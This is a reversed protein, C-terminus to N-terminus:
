VITGRATRWTTGDSFLPLALAADFVMAGVGATAPDPRLAVPRAVAYSNVTLRGDSRRGTLVKVTSADDRAGILQLDSGKNAGVEASTNSTLTWLTAGLRRMDILCRGGASKDVRLRAEGSEVGLVIRDGLTRPATEFAVLSGGSSVNDNATWTPVGGPRFVGYGMSAPEAASAPSTLSSASPASSGNRDDVILNHTVLVNSTSGTADPTSIGFSENGYTVSPAAGNPKAVRGPRVVVNASVVINSCRREILIGGRDSDAVTNGTISVSGTLREDDTSGDGDSDTVTASDLGSVFIGCGEWWERLRESRTVVNGSISVSKSGGAAYIGHRASRDVTNGVVVVGTPGSQDEWGGVWIGNYYSGLVDNGTCVVHQSGRSISVGNDASYRVRNGSFIVAQNSRFGIDLCRHATSDTMRSFGRIGYLKVPISRFGWLEVRDVTVNRISPYPGGPLLDGVFEIAAQLGRTGTTGSSIVGASKSWDIVFERTDRAYDTGLADSNTLSGKITMDRITIDSAAETGSRLSFAADLKVHLMGSITTAGIGAGEITLQSHGALSCSKSLQYERAGARVVTPGPVAKAAALARDWCYWDSADSPLRYDEVMITAPTRRLAANVKSTPDRVLAAVRDDLAGSDVPEAEAQPACLLAALAGAGTTAVVRRRSPTAGGQPSM